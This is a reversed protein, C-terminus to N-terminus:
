QEYWLKKAYKEPDIRTLMTVTNSSMEAQVLKILPVQNSMFDKSETERSNVRM